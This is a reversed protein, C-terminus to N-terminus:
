FTPLLMARHLAFHCHECEDSAGARLDIWRPDTPQSIGGEEEPFGSGANDDQLQRRLMQNNGFLVEIKIVFSRPAHQEMGDPGAFDMKLQRTLEYVVRGQQQQAQVVHVM